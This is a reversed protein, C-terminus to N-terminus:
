GAPSETDGKVSGHVSTTPGTTGRKLEALVELMNLRVVVRLTKNVHHQGLFCLLNTTNEGKDRFSSLLIIKFASQDAITLQYYFDRDLTHFVQLGVLSVAVLLILQRALLKIEDKSTVENVSKLIRPLPQM